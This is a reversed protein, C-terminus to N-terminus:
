HRQLPIAMRMACPTLLPTMWAVPTGADRAYSYSGDADITLTGYPGQIDTGVTAADNLATGTDGPAVGFVAAGDAGAVDEVGQDNAAFVNGSVPDYSGAAVLATDDAATPEDDIINIALNGNAADGDADTVVIAFNDSTDDGNTAVDLTYTYAVTGAAISTITLTGYTGSVTDGATVTAGNVTIVAPGDAAAFSFSGTTTESDAAANSGAALGAESVITGSDEVSPLNVTVDSNGLSVVLTATSSDGDADRLTYTCTDDVGGPTGPDRVYSYTGDTNITLVGYQGQIAKGVTAADNLATGTDGPAVGSIAAGDAGAVDEVGQDNAAFVNGTVPDFSGAAVLATDDA